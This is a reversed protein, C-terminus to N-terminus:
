YGKSLATITLAGTGSSKTYLLRVFRYHQDILNWIYSSAAGGTAQSTNSIDTFTANDNSGQLKITGTPSGTWVAQLGVGKLTELNVNSSTCTAASMDCASLITWLSFNAGSVYLSLLLGFVIAKLRM